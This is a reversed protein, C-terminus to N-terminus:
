GFTHSRSGSNPLRIASAISAFGKCPRQIPILKTFEHRYHHNISLRVFESHSILSCWRKSVSKYQVASQCPLRYLVEFLLSDPLKEVDIQIPEEETRRILLMLVLLSWPLGKSSDVAMLSYRRKPVSKYQFASRCPFGFLFEVLRSHHLKEIDIQIQIQIPEEEIRRIRKRRPSLISDDEDILSKERRRRLILSLDKSSEVAM